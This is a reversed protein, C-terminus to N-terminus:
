PFRGERSEEGLMVAPLGMVFFYVVIGVQIIKVAVHHAPREVQLNEEQVAAKRLNM